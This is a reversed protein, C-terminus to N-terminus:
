GLALDLKPILEHSKFFFFNNKTWSTHVCRHVCVLCASSSKLHEARESEYEKSISNRVLGSSPLCGALGLSGSDRDGM